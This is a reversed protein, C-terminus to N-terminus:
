MITMTRRELIDWIGDGAHISFVSAALMKKFVKRLASYQVLCMICILM